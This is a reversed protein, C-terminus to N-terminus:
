AVEDKLQAIRACSKDIRSEYIRGEEVLRRICACARPVADEEYLTNNALCLIDVGALIARELAMEFGYHNAIAGMQVDDSIVVGDYGLEDRLLGGIVAQSLTAPYGPDLHRNFVHATMISDALGADILRAYPELERRSWSQTVDVFDQHSDEAASGHGPFHKLTCRVGHQRHGEVFAGAHLAVVEPDASYCREIGGIVPSDPNLNLDVVPALNLNFGLGVLGQATEAAARRTREPDGGAGLEQASPLSPFGVEERLRRVQGGEQDVAVLLPIEAVDAMAGVLAQVQEASRINRESSQLPVDYDFLVVSGLHYQGIDRVVPHGSGVSLGRFGAMLMQGIKVDLEM